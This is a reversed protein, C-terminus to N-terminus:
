IVLPCCYRLMEPLLDSYNGVKHMLTETEQPDPPYTYLYFLYIFLFSKFHFKTFLSFNLARNLKFFITTSAFKFTVTFNMEFIKLPSDHPITLILDILTLHFDYPILQRATLGDETETKKSFNFCLHHASKSPLNRFCFRQFYLSNM